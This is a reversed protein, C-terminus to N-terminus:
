RLSYGVTGGRAPIGRSFLRRAKDKSKSYEIPQGGLPWAGLIVAPDKNEQRSYGLLLSHFCAGYALVKAQASVGRSFLRLPKTKAEEFNLFYTNFGRNLVVQCIKNTRGHDSIGKVLFFGEQDLDGGFFVVLRWKCIARFRYRGQWM